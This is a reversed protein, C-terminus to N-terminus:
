QKTTGSQYAPKMGISAASRAPLHRAAGIGANSFPPRRVLQAPPVPSVMKFCLVFWSAAQFNRFNEISRTGATTASYLAILRQGAYIGAHDSGLICSGTGNKPPWSM